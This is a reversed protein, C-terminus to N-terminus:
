YCRIEIGVDTNFTNEAAIVEVYGEHIEVSKFSFHKDDATDYVVQIVTKKSSSIREDIGNEPIRIIDGVSATVGKRVICANKAFNETKIAEEVVEPMNKEIIDSRIWGPRPMYKILNDLSALVEVKLGEVGEYYAVVNNDNEVLQKFDTLLQQRKEFDEKDMKDRIIGGPNKPLFAIVPINNEKAYVYEKETFSKGTEDDISGYCGGVILLYYDCDNLMNTIVDWQSTPAAHFQEMGVPIFGKTLLLGILAQREEKLDEFTSSVFITYKVKSKPDNIMKNIEMEIRDTITPDVNEM